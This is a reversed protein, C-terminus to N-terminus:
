LSHYVYMMVLPRFFKRTDYYIILCSEPWDEHSDDITLVCEM